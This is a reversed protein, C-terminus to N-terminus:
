TIRRLRPDAWAQALDVLVNALVYVFGIVLTVGAIAPFDSSAISRDIYLGLGPWAFITEVVAIGALMAGFELGAITLPANLSNRMGHSWLVRRESLGKARASRAYDQRLSHRLSSRLTRATLLAPALALCLAPLFLHWIADGVVDFRGALLGDVVLLKTPGDPPNLGQSLRAGAPFLHWKSYLLLLLLLALCFNPVSAGALLAFRAAEGGKSTQTTLVGVGLGIVGTMLAAALLLELSAPWASEIDSKVPQRTHVSQSLDGHALRSMYDKYQEIVPKDLGLEKRKAAIVEKSAGAGAYVRAPDSPIVAGLVFVITVLVWLVVVLGLLRSAIFRLITM